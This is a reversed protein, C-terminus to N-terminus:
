SKNKKSDMFEGLWESFEKIDYIFRNVNSNKLWFYGQELTSNMREKIEELEDLGFQPDSCCTKVLSSLHSINSTIEKDTKMWGELNDWDM